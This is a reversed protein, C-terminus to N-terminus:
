VSVIKKIGNEYIKLWQDAYIFVSSFVASQNEIKFDTDM